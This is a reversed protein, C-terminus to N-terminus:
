RSRLWPEIKQALAEALAGNLLPTAHVRDFFLEGIPRRAALEQAVAVGEVLGDAGDPGLELRQGFARMQLQFETRYDKRNGELNIRGPPLLALVDAGRREAQARIEELLLAFEGPLLRPRQRGGEGGDDPAPRGLGWLWRCLRSWALAAPPQAALWRAHLAVDGEGGWLVGDNWGFELVVLDPQYGFGESLLFRWGQFLTYGPVGANICEISRGPVLERLRAETQEVFSDRLSVLYGFTCSDGVFLVRTEGAPKDRPIAHNERLGRDNSVVGFFPRQDPRFSLNPRLSWFRDPDRRFVDDFDVAHGESLAESFRALRPMGPEPVFARLALEAVVLAALAAGAGLGIRIARTNRATAM